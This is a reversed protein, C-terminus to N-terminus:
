PGSSPEFQPSTRIIFTRILPLLRHCNTLAKERHCHIQEFLPSTRILPLQILSLGSYMTRKTIMVANAIFTEMTSSQLPGQSCGKNM